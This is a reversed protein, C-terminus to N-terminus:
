IQDNIESCKVLSFDKQTQAGERLKIITNKTFDDQQYAESIALNLSTEEDETNNIMTRSKLEPESEPKLSLNNM